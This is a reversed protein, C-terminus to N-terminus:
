YDKVYLFLRRSLILPRQEDLAGRQVAVSARPLIIIIHGPILFSEKYMIVRWDRVNCADDQRPLGWDGALEHNGYLENDYFATTTDTEDM